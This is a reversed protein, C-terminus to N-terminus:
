RKKTRSKKKILDFIKKAQTFFQMKDDVSKDSLLRHFYDRQLAETKNPNKM